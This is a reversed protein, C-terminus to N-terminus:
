AVAANADAFTGVLPGGAEKIATQEHRLEITDDESNIWECSIDASDIGDAGDDPSLKSLICQYRAVRMDKGSFM